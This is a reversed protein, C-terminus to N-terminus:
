KFWWGHCCPNNKLFNNQFPLALDLEVGTGQMSLIGAFFKSYIITEMIIRIDSIILSIGM